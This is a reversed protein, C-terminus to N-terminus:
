GKFVKSRLRTAIFVAGYLKAYFAAIAPDHGLFSTVQNKFDPDNMVQAIGDLNSLLYGSALSLYGTAVTLSHLCGAKIKSWIM